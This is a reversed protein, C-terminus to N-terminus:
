AVHSSGNGNLGGDRSLERFLWARAYRWDREVTRTTLDLAEAIEDQTLGAFFRMQVVMCKREDHAALKELAESLALLDVSTSEAEGPLSELHVRSWDGGRKARRISRAEEVLIRRMAVSAAALCQTRSETIADGQRTLRLYAEHVLATTQLPHDSRERALQRRALQRLEGYLTSVLGDFGGRFLARSVATTPSPGPQITTRPSM